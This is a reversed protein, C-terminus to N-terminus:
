SISQNEDEKGFVLNVISLSDVGFASALQLVQGARMSGPHKTLLILGPLDTGLLGSLEGVTLYDLLQSFRVIAGTVIADHVAKFVNTPDENTSQLLANM